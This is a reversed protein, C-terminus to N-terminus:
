NNRDKKEVCALLEEVSSVPPLCTYNRCLWFASLSDTTKGRLMPFSDDTLVACMIVRHPIYHKLLAKLQQPAQPGLITIENTGLVIEQLVGAWYGFSNGYRVIANGVIKVM